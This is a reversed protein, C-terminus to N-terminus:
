SAPCFLPSDISTMIEIIDWAVQKSMVDYDDAIIPKM